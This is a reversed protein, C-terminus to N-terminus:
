AALQARLFELTRQWALEAAAPDYEPRDHEFFWHGPGQYVHLTVKRGADRMASEMQRVWELEEWEDQEAFHGLYAARRRL